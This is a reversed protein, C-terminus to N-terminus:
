YISRLMPFRDLDYIEGTQDSNLDPSGAKITFIGEQQAVEKINYQFFEVPESLDTNLYIRYILLPSESFGLPVRDLEDDLINEVDAITFSVSQDLDDSQMANVPKISAPEFTVLGDEPTTADLAVSDVVLRYTRSFLSHSLEITEFYREEEPQSALLRRYDDIDPM